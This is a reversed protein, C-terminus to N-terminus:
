APKSDARVFDIFAKLAAPMQRRSPYYLYFGVSPPTWDQLLPVLRKSQIEDQVSALPLRAIGVGDVAARLALDGDSVILSGKVVVDLSKGRKQFSWSAIAGSSFRQRICNHSQLDEPNKPVGHRDLYGSSAVLTPRADEGVRLAIMDRAVRHGPRIGADFRDRVIDTLASDTIIELTIAPYAALFKALKPEIISRAAPRPVTLRLNGGPKDRFVNMSEVADELGQLAPRLQSLLREGVETLAVSRTTRNLLRVGLREELGRITESVASRSIGLHLAAKAFSAREAVAVFASMEAVGLKRVTRFSRGLTRKIIAVM